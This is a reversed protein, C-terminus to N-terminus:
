SVANLLQPLSWLEATANAAMAPTTRRTTHRWCFDYYAMHLAMAAALKELKEYFGLSLRTFRKM